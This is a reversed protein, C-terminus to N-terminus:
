DSENDRGSDGNQEALVTKGFKFKGYFTKSVRPRVKLLLRLYNYLGEKVNDKPNRRIRKILTRIERCVLTYTIQFTGINRIFFAETEMKYMENKLDRWYFRILNEVDKEPYGKEKAVVKIVYDINRM